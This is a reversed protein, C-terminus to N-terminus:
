SNFEYFREIINLVFGNSKPQIAIQEIEEPFDNILTEKVRNAMEESCDSLHLELMTHEETVNLIFTCGSICKEVSGMLKKFYNSYERYRERRLNLLVGYGLYQVYVKRDNEKVVFEAAM